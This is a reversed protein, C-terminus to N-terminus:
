IDIWYTIGIDGIHSGLQVAGQNDLIINWEQPVYDGNRPQIIKGNKWLRNAIAKGEQTKRNWCEESHTELFELFIEEDVCQTSTIIACVENEQVKRELIDCLCFGFSLGVKM